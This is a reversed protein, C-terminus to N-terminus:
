PHLGWIAICSDFAVGKVVIGDRMFNIRHPYFYIHDAKAVYEQWWKTSTAVPLLGVTLRDDKAENLARAVFPLIMGRGYPPNLWNRMGWPEILGDNDLTGDYFRNVKRNEVSAAVDIQFHFIDDWYKFVEPPTEWDNNGSSPIADRKSM